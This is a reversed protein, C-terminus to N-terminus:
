CVADWCMVVICVGCRFGMDAMDSGNEMFDLGIGNM